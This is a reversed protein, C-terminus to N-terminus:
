PSRDQTATFKFHDPGDLGSKAVHKDLSFISSQALMVIKGFSVCM